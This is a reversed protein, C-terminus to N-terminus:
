GVSTSWIFGVIYGIVYFLIGLLTFGFVRINMRKDLVSKSPNRPNYYVDVVKGLPYKDLTQKIWHEGSDRIEQVGFTLRDSNFETGNVTYNYIVKAYRFPTYTDIERKAVESTVIKGQTKSWTKSHLIEPLFHLSGLILVLGVYCLSMSLWDPHCLNISQLILLLPITIIMLLIRYRDRM